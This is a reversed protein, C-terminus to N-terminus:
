YIMRWALTDTVVSNLAKLIYLHVNARRRDWAHKKVDIKNDGNRLSISKSRCVSKGLDKIRTRRRGQRYLGPRSARTGRRLTAFIM